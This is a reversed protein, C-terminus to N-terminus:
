GNHEAKALVGCARVVADARHAESRRDRDRDRMGDMM